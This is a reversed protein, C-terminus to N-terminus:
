HSVPTIYAEANPKQCDFHFCFLYSYNAFKVLIANLLNFVNFLFSKDAGCQWQRADIKIIAELQETPCGVM